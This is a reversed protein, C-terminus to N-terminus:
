KPVDPTEVVGCSKELKTPFKISLLLDIIWATVKYPMSALVRVALKDDWDDETEQVKSLMKTMASQFKLGIPKVIIRAAGIYALWPAAKEWLASAIETESM